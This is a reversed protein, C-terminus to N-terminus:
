QCCRKFREALWAWDYSKVIENYDGNVEEYYEVAHKAGLLCYDSYNGEARTLWVNLRYETEVTPNVAM